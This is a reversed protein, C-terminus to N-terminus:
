FEKFYLSVSVVGLHEAVYGIYYDPHNYKRMIDSREHPCYGRLSNSEKWLRKITNVEKELESTKPVLYGEESSWVKM